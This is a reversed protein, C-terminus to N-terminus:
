QYYIRLFCNQLNEREELLIQILGISAERPNNM